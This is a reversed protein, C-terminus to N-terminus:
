KESENKHKYGSQAHQQFVWYAWYSLGIWLIVISLFGTYDVEHEPTLLLLGRASIKPGSQTSSM